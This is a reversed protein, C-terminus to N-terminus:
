ASRVVTSSHYWMALQEVIILVGTLAGIVITVTTAAHDHIMYHWVALLIAAMAPLHVVVVRSLTPRTFYAPGGTPVGAAMAM